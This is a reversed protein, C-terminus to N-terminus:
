RPERSRSTRTLPQQGLMAQLTRANRVANAHADNNFYAFVETGQCEWETIRDTWWALNDDSYSGSYLHRDDPGHLRLYSFSATV